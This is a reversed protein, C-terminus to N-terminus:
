GTQACGCPPWARATTRSARCRRSSCRARDAARDPRAADAYTTPSRTRASRQRASSGASSCTTWIGTRTSSCGRGSSTSASAASRASAARSFTFRPRWPSFAWLLLTSSAAIALQQVIIAWAGGGASRSSSARRDRRRAHRGDDAAGPEPLQMTATSCRARRRGSRADGSLQGLPGRVAAAGGARRLVRALPWSLPSASSCSSRRGAAASTWFVTSRDAESLEERQVLAAGLALDAFILVLASFVLVMAALGYEEPTLLRALIVVVAVRSIQRFVQSAVKWALGSRIRNHMSDM